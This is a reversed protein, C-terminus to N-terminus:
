GRWWEWEGQLNRWRLSRIKSEHSMPLSHIFSSENDDCERKKTAKLNKNFSAEFKDDIAKAVAQKRQEVTADVEAGEYKSTIEKIRAKLNNLKNKGSVTENGSLAAVQKELKILEARDNVDSVRSDIDQDISINQRRNNVVREVAPSNEVKIDASVYAEDDMMKLADNFERGNLTQGNISYKPAGQVLAKGVSVQLHKTQM